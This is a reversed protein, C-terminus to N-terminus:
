ETYKELKRPDRWLPSEYMLSQKEENKLDQMSNVGLM